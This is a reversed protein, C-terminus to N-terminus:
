RQCLTEVTVSRLGRAELDALIQPLQTVTRPRGDHLLVVDGPRARAVRRRLTAPPVFGGDGTRIACWVLRLGAAEVAAYLRPSVAGFPPRYHRIPRGILAELAGKARRLEEAGREPRWVTLWPHHSAGHLAVEHRQAIARTLEPEALARDALLFFTARHNEGLARLISPTTAAVPGDDFTLAVADPHVSRCLAPGFLELSPSASGLVVLLVIALAGLSHVAVATSSAWWGM